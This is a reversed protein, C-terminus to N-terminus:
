FTFRISVHNVLVIVYAVTHIRMRTVFSTGYVGIHKSTITNPLHLWLAHHLQPQLSVLPSPHLHDIVTSARTVSMLLINFVYTDYLIYNFYIFTFQSYLLKDKANRVSRPTIHFSKDITNHCNQKQKFELNFTM